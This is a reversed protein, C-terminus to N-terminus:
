TNCPVISSFLQTISITCISTESNGTITYPYRQCIVAAYTQTDCYEEKLCQSVQTETGDCRVTKNPLLSHGVTGHSSCCVPYGGIFGLERCVVQASAETFGQDCVTYWEDDDGYYLVAGRDTTRGIGTHLKVPFFFLLRGKNVAYCLTNSVSEDSLCHIFPSLQKTILM